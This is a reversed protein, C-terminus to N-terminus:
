NIGNRGGMSREQRLFHLERKMEDLQEQMEAIRQRSFKDNEFLEYIAVFNLRSKLIQIISRIIGLEQQSAKRGERRIHIVQAQEYLMTDWLFFGFLLFSVATMASWFGGVKGLFAFTDMSSLNITKMPVLHATRAARDPKLYAEFEQTVRSNQIQMEYIIEGSDEQQTIKNQGLANSSDANYYFMKHGKAIHLSAMARSLAPKPADLLVRQFLQDVKVKEMEGCFNEPKNYIGLTSYNSVVSQYNSFWGGRYESNVYYNLTTFKGILEDLKQSKCFGNFSKFHMQIPSLVLTELHNFIKFKNFKEKIKDDLKLPGGLEQFMYPHAFFNYAAAGTHGIGIFATETPDSHSM